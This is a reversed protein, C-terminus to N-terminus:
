FNVLTKMMKQTVSSEMAGSLAFLVLLLAGEYGSGIIVSLLAALTMLVDINIIMNWVSKNVKDRKPPRSFGIYEPVRDSKINSGIKMPTELSANGVRMIHKGDKM